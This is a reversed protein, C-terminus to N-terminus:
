SCRVSAGAPTRACASSGSPDSTSSKRISVWPLMTFTSFAGDGAAVEASVIPSEITSRSASARPYGCTETVAFLWDLEPLRWHASQHTGPAKAPSSDHERALPATLENQCSSPPERSKFAAGADFESTPF